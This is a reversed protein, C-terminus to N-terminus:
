VFVTYDYFPAPGPRKSLTDAIAAAVQKVSSRPTIKM